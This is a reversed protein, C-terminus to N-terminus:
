SCGASRGNFKGLPSPKPGQSTWVELAPPKRGVAGVMAHHSTAVDQSVNM